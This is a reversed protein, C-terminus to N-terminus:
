VIDEGRMMLFLGWWVLVERKLLELLSYNASLDAWLPCTM